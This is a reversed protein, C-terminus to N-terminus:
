LDVPKEPPAYLTARGSAGQRDRPLTGRATSSTPGTHDAHEALAHWKLIRADPLIEDGSDPLDM